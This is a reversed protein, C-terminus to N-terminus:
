MKVSIRFLPLQKQKVAWVRWRLRESYLWLMILNIIPDHRHQFYQMVSIWGTCRRRDWADSSGGLRQDERCFASSLIVVLTDWWPVIPYIAASWPIQSHLFQCVVTQNRGRPCLKRSIGLGALIGPDRADTITFDSQRIVVSLHKMLSRHLWVTGHEDRTHARDAELQRHHLTLSFNTFSFYAEACSAAYKEPLIVDVPRNIFPM